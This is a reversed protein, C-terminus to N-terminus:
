SAWACGDRWVRCEGEREQRDVSTKGPWSWGTNAVATRRRRVPGPDAGVGCERSMRVFGWSIAYSSVSEGYILADTPDAQGRHCTGRWRRGRLAGLELCVIPWARSGVGSTSRRRIIREVQPRHRHPHRGRQTRPLSPLFLYACVSPIARCVWSKIMFGLAKSSPASSVATTTAVVRGMSGVSDARWEVMAGRLSVPDRAEGPLPATLLPNTSDKTGSTMSVLASM